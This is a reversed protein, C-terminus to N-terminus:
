ITVACLLANAYVTGTNLRTNVQNSLVNFNGQGLYFFRYGCELPVERFAHQFKIGVGATASFNATTHGSFIYDPLTGDGLSTEHFGSTSMFNPGIGADVTLAYRPSKLDITSKAMAYLPIHTIHYGYALNTFLSEQVVKGSVGTKALYYANLGYFLNFHSNEQSKLFYGLGVLVNSDQRQSATFDDGILTDIDVHQARGQQSWFGGLQIVAHSQNLSLFSRHQVAPNAADNAPQNAFNIGSALMSFLMLLGRRYNGQNYHM